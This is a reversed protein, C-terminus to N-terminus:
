AVARQVYPDLSMRAEGRLIPVCSEAFEQTFQIGSELAWELYRHLQSMSGGPVDHGSPRDHLVLLPWDSESSAHQADVVWDGVAGVRDRPIHTWMVLTARHAVLYDCAHQSLVHPGLRGRGNPRFFRSEHALPGLLAHMGGIEREPADMDNQEGLPAGHSLTHNGIWHGEAHAREALVRGEVSMLQTGVLFFSANVGYRGLVDLVHDTIGPTPGNDFTLTVRRM